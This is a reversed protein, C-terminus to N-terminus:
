AGTAGPITRAWHNDGSNTNNATTHGAVTATIYGAHQTTTACLRDKQAANFHQRLNEMANDDLAM